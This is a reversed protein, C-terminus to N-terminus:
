PTLFTKAGEFHGEFHSMFHNNWWFFIIDQLKKFLPVNITLLCCSSFSACFSPIYLGATLRSYILFGFVRLGFKYFREFLGPISEWGPPIAENSDIGPGSFLKCIRCIRARVPFSAWAHQGYNYGAFVYAPVELKVTFSFVLLYSYM